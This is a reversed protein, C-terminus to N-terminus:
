IRRMWNLHGTQKCSSAITPLAVMTGAPTLFSVFLQFIIMSIDSVDDTKMLSIDFWLFNKTGSSQFRDTHSLRHLSVIVFVVAHPSLLPMAYSFSVLKLRIVFVCYQHQRM